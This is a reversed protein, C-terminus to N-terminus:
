AAAEKDDTNAFPITEVAREEFKVVLEKFEFRALWDHAEKVGGKGELKTTTQKGNRALYPTKDPDGYGFIHRAAEESMVVPENPMFEFDKGDYRDVYRVAHRNTVKLIIAERLSDVEM